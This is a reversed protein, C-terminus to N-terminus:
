NPSPEEVHDIVFVDVAGVQSELKLGLQDGLAELITPGDPDPQSTSGPPLPGNPQPAFEVSVDYEGTLGTEDVVPRDLNAFTFLNVLMGVPVDRGGIHVRGPASAQLQLIRGCVAPFGGAITPQATPQSGPTSPPPSATSCPADESHPQLQPGTKGPKSLVAAFVPLQQTENHVTLKFRDALLSQMMLRMQANTPNGEARAQIDYRATSAWKPLQPLMLKFQNGTLNYAFLIYNSLPLNTGSYLGGTPAGLDGSLPVNSSISRSGSDNKKVSAVDFTLSGGADKQWQPVTTPQTAPAQNATSQAQVPRAIASAFLAVTLAILSPTTLLSRRNGM